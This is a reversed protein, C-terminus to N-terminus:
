VPAAPGMHLGALVEPWLRSLAPRFLDIHGIHKLGYRAPELRQRRQPARTFLRLLDDVNARTAIPDDSAAISVIPARFEDYYHQRIEREFGNLVYGPQLCWRAWQRAIGPPLDEGWGIRKAPAYGFLRSTAPIYLSLLLQAAWRTPRRIGGVYGSSAAVQVVGSLLGHNPMLGILQGGVSHGVLFLPLNPHRQALAALAAPMDHEGWDQKRARSLRPHAGHLSDGIGRYDFTLVACGQEALWSAFAAYFRQRVGTAGCILVAARPADAAYHCAALTYGDGTQLSFPSPTSKM